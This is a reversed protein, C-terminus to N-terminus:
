FPCCDPGLLDLNGLLIGDWHQNNLWSRILTANTQDVAERRQPDQVRVGGEYGGKLHLRRDLAESPGLESSAGLRPMAACCRSATARERLGWVFHRPVAMVAWNRLPYLNTVVLLNMGANGGALPDDAPCRRRGHLPPKPWCGDNRFRNERYLQLQVPQHDPSGAARCGCGSQSAGVAEADNGVVAVTPTGVGAAVHLPGADVSM